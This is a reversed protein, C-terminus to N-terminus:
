RGTGLAKETAPYELASSLTGLYRGPWDGWAQETVPAKHGKIRGVKQRFFQENDLLQHADGM